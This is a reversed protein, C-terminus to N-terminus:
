FAQVQPFPFPIDTIKRAQMFANHGLALEQFVRTVIPAEVDMEAKYRQSLMTTIWSYVLFPRDPAMGLIDLEKEHLGGIVGLKMNSCYLKWLKPSFGGTMITLFSLSNWNSTYREEFPLTQNYTQVSKRSLSFEVPPSCEDDDVDYKILSGTLDADLRLDQICVAHLLSLLHIVDRHFTANQSIESESIRSSTKDSELEAAERASQEYCRRGLPTDRAFAAAHCAASSLNATMDQVHKIGEWYRQYSLQTRFVILFGTITAYITFVRWDLVYKAVAENWRSACMLYAISGSVLTPLIVRSLPSGNLRILTSLGLFSKHFPIM